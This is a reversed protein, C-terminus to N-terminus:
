QLRHRAMFLLLGVWDSWGIMNELRSMVLYYRSEQELSQGWRLAVCDNQEEKEEGMKEMEWNVYEGVGWRDGSGDM